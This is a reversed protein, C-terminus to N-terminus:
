NAERRKKLSEMANRHDPGLEEAVQESEMAEDLMEDFIARDVAM